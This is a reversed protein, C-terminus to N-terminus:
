TGAARRNSARSADSRAIGSRWSTSTAAIRASSSASGAILLAGLSRASTSAVGAAYYSQSLGGAGDHHGRQAPRLASLGRSTAPKKAKKVGPQALALTAELSLSIPISRRIPKSEASAPKATAAFAEGAAADTVM